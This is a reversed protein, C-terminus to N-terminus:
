HVLDVSWLPRGSRACLSVGKLSGSLEQGGIVMAEGALAGWVGGPKAGPM